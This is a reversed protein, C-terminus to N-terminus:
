YYTLWVGVGWLPIKKVLTGNSTGFSGLCRKGFQFNQM